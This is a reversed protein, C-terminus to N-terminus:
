LPLLFIFDRPACKLQRANRTGLQFQMRTYCSSNDIVSQNHIYVDWALFDTSHRLSIASRTSRRPGEAYASFAGADVASQYSRKAKKQITTEIAGTYLECARPDPAPSKARAASCTAASM